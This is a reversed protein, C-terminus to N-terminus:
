EDIGVEILVRSPTYPLNVVLASKTYTNSHGLSGHYVLLDNGMRRVLYGGTKKYGYVARVLYPKKGPVRKICDGVYFKSTTEDLALYTRSTLEFIANKAKSAPVECIDTDPVKVGSDPSIEIGQTLWDRGEQDLSKPARCGLAIVMASVLIIYLIKIIMIRVQM